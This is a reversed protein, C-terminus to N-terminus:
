FLSPSASTRLHPRPPPASLTLPMHHPTPPHVTFFNLVVDIMFTIDLVIDIYRLSDTNDDLSGFALNYPIEVVEYLCLLTILIDWVIRPRGHPHLVIIRRFWWHHRHDSKERKLRRSSTTDSKVPEFMPLMSSQSKRRSPPPAFSVAFSRSRSMKARQIDLPDTHTAMRDSAISAAGAIVTPVGANADDSTGLSPRSSTSAEDDSSSSAEIVDPQSSPDYFGASNVLSRRRRVTTEM